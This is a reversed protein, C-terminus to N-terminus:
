HTQIKRNGKEEKKKEREKVGGGAKEPSIKSNIRVVHRGVLLGEKEDVVFGKSTV